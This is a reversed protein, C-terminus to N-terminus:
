GQKRYMSTSQQKTACRSCEYNECHSAHIHDQEQFIFIFRIALCLTGIGNASSFSDDAWSQLLNSFHLALSPNLETLPSSNRSTKATLPSFSRRRELRRGACNIDHIKFQCPISPMILSQQDAYELWRWHSRGRHGLEELFSVMTGLSSAALPEDAQRRSDATTTEYMQSTPRSNWCSLV